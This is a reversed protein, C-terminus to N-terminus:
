DIPYMQKLSKGSASMQRIFEILEKDQEPIDELFLEKEEYKSESFSFHVFREHILEDTLLCGILDKLKNKGFHLYKLKIDNWSRISSLFSILDDDQPINM